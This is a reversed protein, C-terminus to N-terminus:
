RFRTVAYRTLNEFGDIQRGITYLLEDILITDGYGVAIDSPMTVVDVEEMLGFNDSQVVARALNATLSAEGGSVPYHKATSGTTELWRGAHKKLLDKKSM